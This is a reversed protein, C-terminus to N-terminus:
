RAGASPGEIPDGWLDSVLGYRVHGPVRGQRIPTPVNRDHGFWIDVGHMASAAVYEAALLNLHVGQSAAVARAENVGPALDDKPIVTFLDPDADFLAELARDTLARLRRTIQGGRGSLPHSPRLEALVTAEPRFIAEGLKLRLYASPIILPHEGALVDPLTGAVARIIVYEDGIIM